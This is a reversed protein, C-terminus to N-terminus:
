GTPSTTTSQFRSHRQSRHYMDWGDVFKPFPSMLPMYRNPGLYVEGSIDVNPQIEHLRNLSKMLTSKGCGSPGIIATLENENFEVSVDNLATVERKGTYTVTLNETKLATTM